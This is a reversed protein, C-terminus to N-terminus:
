QEDFKYEERVPSFIDLAVVPMNGARVSHEVNGPIVYMDGKKLTQAEGGITFEAEGELIVGGQEHPHSHLPVLGNPEINVMSLLMEEGWCTAASAGPFLEHFNQTEAKHFYM